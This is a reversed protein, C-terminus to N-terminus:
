PGQGDPRDMESGMKGARGAERQGWDQLFLSWRQAKTSTTGAAQLEMGKLDWHASTWRKHKDIATIDRGEDWEGPCGTKNVRM